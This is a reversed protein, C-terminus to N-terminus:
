ILCTRPFTVFHCLCALRKEVYLGVYLSVCECVRKCVNSVLCTCQVSGHFRPRMCRPKEVLLPPCKM